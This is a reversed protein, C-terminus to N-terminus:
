GAPHWWHHDPGAHLNRVLREVLAGDEPGAHPAPPVVEAHGDIEGNRAAVGGPYLSPHSEGDLILHVSSM